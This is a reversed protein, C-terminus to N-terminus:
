HQVDTVVLLIDSDLPAQHPYGPLSKIGERIAFAADSEPDMQEYQNILEHFRFKTAQTLRWEIYTRITLTSM